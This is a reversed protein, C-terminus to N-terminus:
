ADDGTGAARPAVYPVNRGLQGGIRGLRGRGRRMQRNPLEHKCIWEPERAAAEGSIRRMDVTVGHGGSESPALLRAKEDRDIREDRRARMTELWDRMKAANEARLRLVESRRPIRGSGTM